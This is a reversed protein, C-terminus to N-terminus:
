LIRNEVITDCCLERGVKRELDRERLLLHFFLLLSRMTENRITERSQDRAILYNLLESISSAISRSFHLSWHSRKFMDKNQINLFM